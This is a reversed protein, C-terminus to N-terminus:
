KEGQSLRCEGSPRSPLSSQRSPAFGSHRPAPVANAWNLHLTNRRSQREQLEDIVKAVPNVIVAM